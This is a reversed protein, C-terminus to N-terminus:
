SLIKGLCERDKKLEDITASLVNWERQLKALRLSMIGAVSLYLAMLALLAAIPHNGWFAIAVILTVTFGALLLCVSAVIALWLSRLIKEREEQIEVLALALRNEVISIFRNTVRKSAVLMNVSGNTEPQETPAIM